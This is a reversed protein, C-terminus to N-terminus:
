KLDLGKLIDNFVEEQTQEGNIRLFRYSPNDRYFNIAPLVEGEYWSLRKAVVEPKKDDARGRLQLHQEAWDHSVDIFVVTPKERQYFPLATDLVKAELLSRPMGDFIFHEKEHAKNVFIQSWIWIALFDPQREGVELIGRARDWTYGSEAIYKRFYSGTELYLVTDEPDQSTLFERMRASQTGKGSGPRGIFIITQLNM